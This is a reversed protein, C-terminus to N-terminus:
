KITLSRIYEEFLKEQTEKIIRRPTKHITRKIDEIVRHQNEAIAGDETIIYDVGEMVGNVFTEPASPDHVIDVATAIFKTMSGSSKDMNGVGRSSVGLQVGGEILNKAMLGMPMNELIMAKGMVNSGSWELKTILHSVKDLNVRPGDPHNLEGVARGKAVYGSNYASVAEELVTKPYVRKNRNRIDAQMFIGELHLKKQGGVAESVLQLPEDIHETFLLM